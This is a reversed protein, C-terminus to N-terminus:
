IVTQRFLPKVVVAKLKRGGCTLAIETGVKSYEPRIGGNRYWDQPHLRCLEPPLWVSPLVTQVICSTVMVPIGRDIM